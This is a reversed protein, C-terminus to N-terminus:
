LNYDVDTKVGYKSSTALYIGLLIIFLALWNLLNLTESFILWALIATLIPNLLLITAVLGSSLKNLSYTLLFHSSFGTIALIIVALWGGLSHPFLEDGAVLLLPLLVITGLLCNWTTIAIISLRTQLKELILISSGWLLASLLALVDGQLKDLTISFDNAALAISGILSIAMGILFRRDFKQAFLIWGILTTFLPIISHMVESNAVSTQTLSWAWLLQFGVFIIALVLLWLFNPTDPLIKIPPSNALSTADALSRWRKKIVSIGNWLGLVATGIWLRNFITANPTISSESIRLLIPIFAIILVAILIALYAMKVKTSSSNSESLELQGTMQKSSFLTIQGDFIIVWMPFFPLVM